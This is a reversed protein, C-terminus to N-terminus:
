KVVLKIHGLHHEGHWAYLAVLRALSINKGTEPHTFEKHFDGSKLGRLLGAWKKHLAKLLNVSDVPDLITDPTEAWAKENYAKIVPTSETLTWKFRIYANMHSDPLHHLVQRITWGGERYPTNLHTESLGKLVSEIKQPLSEIIDINTKIDEASYVEKPSFKGIPYKLLDDNNM